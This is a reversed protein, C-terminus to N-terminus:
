LQFNKVSDIFAAPHIIPFGDKKYASKFILELLTDSNLEPRLQWGLALVGALYPVTWSGGGVGTFQYSEEGKRYEEAQTRRGCPVHIKTTDDPHEGDRGWGLRVKKFDDPANLDYYCPATIRNHSTCDLVLLGEKEATERAADWAGNNKKFPSGKGSPAASVSVVRIKRDDALDRNKSIIWNLADAQYQADRTWSPAAALYVRADPATGINEGVLLSVVAPAHMSGSEESVDCGVDEYAAIKGKYEAHEGVLNQDIIAVSVGKGTIGKKHLARVGLGPNKGKELVSQALAEYGDPWITEENFWLTQVMNSDLRSGIDSLDNWRIDQYAKVSSIKGGRKFGSDTWNTVLLNCNTLLLVSLILLGRRM